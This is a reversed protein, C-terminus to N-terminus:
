TAKSRRRRTALERVSVDLEHTIRVLHAMESSFSGVLDSIRDATASLSADTNTIDRELLLVKYSLRGVEGPLECAPCGQAVRVLGTTPNDGRGNGGGESM